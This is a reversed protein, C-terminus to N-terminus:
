LIMPSYYIYYSFTQHVVLSSFPMELIAFGIDSM